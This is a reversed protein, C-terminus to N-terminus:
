LNNIADLISQPIPVAIAQEEGQGRRLFAVGQEGKAILEEVGDLVRFYDFKMTIRNQIMDGVRMRLLVQDFAFLESFYKCQTHTTVLCLGDAILEIVDPAYQHLFMERCKGQWRVHNVYYVNGVLNTEDFSVTHHYEFFADM